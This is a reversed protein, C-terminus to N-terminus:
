WWVFFVKQSKLNASKNTKRVPGSGWTWGYKLIANFNGSEEWIHSSTLGVCTKYGFVWFDASTFSVQFTIQSQKFLASITSLEGTDKRWALVKVGVQKSWGSSGAKPSSVILKPLAEECAYWHAFNSQWDTDTSIDASPKPQMFPFVCCWTM